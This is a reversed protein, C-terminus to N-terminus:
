RRCFKEGLFQDTEGCTVKVALREEKENGTISSLQKGDFHVVAGRALKFKDKVAQYILKRKEKRRKEVTSASINYDKPDLGLALLIAVILHTVGRAHFKYRDLVSVVRSTIIEKKGRKGKQQQPEKFVISPDKREDDVTPELEEEEEEEVPMLEDEGDEPQMFEDEDMLERDAVGIRRGLNFEAITGPRGITRQFSVFNKINEKVDESKLAEDCIIDFLNDLKQELAMERALQANSRFRSTHKLSSFEGFLKKLKTLILIKPTIPIGLKQYFLKLRNYTIDAIEAHTTNSRKDLYFLFFRLIEGNSPLKPGGLDEKPKLGLFPQSVPDNLGNNSSGAM